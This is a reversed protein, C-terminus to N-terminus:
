CDQPPIAANQNKHNFWPNLSLNKGKLLDEEELLIRLITALFNSNIVNNAKIYKYAGCFVCKIHKCSGMREILQM